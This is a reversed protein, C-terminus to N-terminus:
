LLSFNCLFQSYQTQKLNAPLLEDDNKDRKPTQSLLDSAIENGDWLPM